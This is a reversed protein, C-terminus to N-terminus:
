GRMGSPNPTHKIVPILKIKMMFKNVIIRFEVKRLFNNFNKTPILEKIKIYQKNSEAQLANIYSNSHATQVKITYKM